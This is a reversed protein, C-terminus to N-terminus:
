TKKKFIIFIHTHKLLASERQDFARNMLMGTQFVTDDVASPIRVEWAVLQMLFNGTIKFNYSMKQRIVGELGLFITQTAPSGTESSHHEPKPLLSPLLM